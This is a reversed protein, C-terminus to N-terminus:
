RAQAQREARQSEEYRAGALINVLGYNGEHCAYEFTPETTCPHNSTSLFDFGLEEARKSYGISDHGASPSVGVGFRLM